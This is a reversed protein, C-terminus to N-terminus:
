EEFAEKFASANNQEFEFEMFKDLLMMIPLIHESKFTVEFGNAHGYIKLRPDNIQSQLDAAQEANLKRQADRDRVAIGSPIAAIIHQIMADSDYGKRVRHRLRLSQSYHQHAAYLTITGGGNARHRM